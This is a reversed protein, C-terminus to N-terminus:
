GAAGAVVLHHADDEIWLLNGVLLEQAHEPLAVVRRLAHPLAGVLPRLVARADIGGGGLLLRACFRRAVLVLAGQGLRAVARDGGFDDLRGLEIKRLIVVLLIEGLVGVAVASM